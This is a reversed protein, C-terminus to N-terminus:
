ELVTKQRTEKIHVKAKGDGEEETISWFSWLFRPLHSDLRHGTFEPSICSFLHSCLLLPLLLLTHAPDLCPKPTTSSPFLLFNFAYM